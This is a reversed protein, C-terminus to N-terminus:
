EILFKYVADVGAQLIRENDIKNKCFVIQDVVANILKYTVIAAAEIDKVKIYEKYMYFCQLTMQWTKERQKEQVAAVEPISFCLINMEFNLEKSIQHIEILGEILRRFWLKLDTKYLEMDRSLEDHVKIYSENYRDLIELLITDKDKFYSYLSGISVNAVQAIENTTTNYYGKKCFLRYAADLIKEKTEISRKQQPKRISKDQNM